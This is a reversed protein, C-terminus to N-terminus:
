ALKLWAGIMLPAIYPFPTINLVNGGNFLNLYSFILCKPFAKMIFFFICKKVNSIHSNINRLSIFYFHIQFPKKSKSNASFTLKTM